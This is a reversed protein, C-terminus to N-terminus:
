RHKDILNKVKAEFDAVNFPKTVCEDVGYEELKAPLEDSAYATVLVTAIKPNKERARAIVDFGTVEPMNKDVVLVDYNERDLMMLAQAGGSAQHITRGPRELLRFILQRIVEEDDAVLIKCAPEQSM